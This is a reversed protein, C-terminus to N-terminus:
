PDKVGVEPSQMQRTVVMVLRHQAWKGTQSGGNLLEHHHSVKWADFPYLAPECPCHATEIPISFDKEHGLFSQREVM